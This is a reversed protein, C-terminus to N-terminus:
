ENEFKLEKSEEEVGLKKKFKDIRKNNDKKQNDKTKQDEENKKEKDWEFLFQVEEEKTEKIKLTTDKKFLGFEKQLIAKTNLVESKNYEKREAKREKGDWSFKPKASTGTIHIYLKIGTGDDMVQGYETQSKDRKLDLFRFNFHYDISDNFAHQGFFRISMASNKIEMEPIIVKGKKVELINKLEEFKVHLLRKELDNINDAGVFLKLKKDTKLYDTIDRFAKVDILEGNHIVFDTVSIISKSDINLYADTEASFVVTADLKGKIQSESIIEQGFDKFLHFMETINMQQVELKTNIAILNEARGDIGVQGKCEGGAFRMSIEKAKFLRDILKFNGKVQTSKFTSYKIQDISADLNFNINEPFVLKTQITDKVNETSYSSLLDDLDLLHSSFDAVINLKQDPLLIYSVLNKLVGNITLDTKGINGRLNEVVANNNQLAFIGAFDHYTLPHDKMKLHLKQVEVSGSAKQIEVDWKEQNLNQYFICKLTAALELQGGAEEIEKRRFFQQLSKVDFSGNLSLQIRPQNFNNLALKGNFSGNEFLGSFKEILLQAEGQENVSKYNGSLTLDNLKVGSNKENISGKEIGFVASVVPSKSKTVLGNVDAEFKLDGTSSYAKIDEGFVSPFTNMLSEIQIKDGNVKLDCFTGQEQESVEGSIKFLLTGIKLNGSRVEYKEKEQDVFLENQLSFKKNQILKLNGSQFHLIEGQHNSTLSFNSETFKGKLNSEQLFFSFDQFNIKNIYNLKLKSFHVQELQFSFQDTGKSESRKWIRYNENGNEDIYINAEAQEVIISNINYNGSLIDWISFDLYIRHAFLFTDKTKNVGEPDLILVDNFVLSAKPFHQIFSLDIEKVKIETALHANLKELAYRKIKDEFLWALFILVLLLTLLALVIRKLWKLAIKGGKKWASVETEEM